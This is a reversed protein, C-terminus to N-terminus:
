TKHYWRIYTVHSSDSNVYIKVSEANGPNWSLNILNYYFIDLNSFYRNFSIFLTITIYIM